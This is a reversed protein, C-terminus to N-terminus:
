SPHRPHYSSGLHAAMTARSAPVQSWSVTAVGKLMPLHDRAVPCTQPARPLAAKLCSTLMM